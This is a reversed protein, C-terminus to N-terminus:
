IWRRNKKLIPWPPIFVAGMFSNSNYSMRERVYWNLFYPIWIFIIEIKLRTTKMGLMSPQTILLTSNKKYILYSFPVTLIESSVLQRKPKTTDIKANRHIYIHNNERVLRGKLPEM